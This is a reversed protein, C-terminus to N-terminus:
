SDLHSAMNSGMAGMGGLHGGGALQNPDYGLNGGHLGAVADDMPGGVGQYAPNETYAGVGQYAPNETYAGVGQYAPNSTYGALDDSGFLGALGQVPSAQPTLVPGIVPVSALAQAMRGPFIAEVLAAAAVGTIFTKQNDGKLAFKAVLGGTVLAFSAGVVRQVMGKGLTASPVISPVTRALLNFVQAQVIQGGVLGTIGGAGAILAHKIPAKKFLAPLTKPLDKVPEVIMSNLFKVPNTAVLLGKRLLSVTGKRGTWAWRHGRPSAHKKRRGAKSHVVAKFGSYRGGPRTRAKWRYRLTRARAMRRSRSMSARRKSMRGRLPNGVIAAPLPNALAM